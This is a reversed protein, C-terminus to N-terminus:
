DMEDKDWKKPSPLARNDLSTPRSPPVIEGELPPITSLRPHQKPPMRKDREVLPAYVQIPPLGKIWMEFHYDKLGVKFKINCHRLADLVGASKIHSERQHAFTFGMKMKRSHDIIHEITPDNAIYDHCEDIYAFVPFRSEREELARQKSAFDLQSIIYRGFIETGRNHHRVKDTDVLLLQPKSLEQYFDIASPAMLMRKIAPINTVGTIRTIIQGKTDSYIGSNFINNFFYQTDDSLYPLIQMYRDLGGKKELLYLLDQITAGPLALLLEVCRNFLGSQIATFNGSEGNSASFIFHVMETANTTFTEKEIDNIFRRKGVVFPNMPTTSDILKYPIEDLIKWKQIRGLLEKQGESDIVVVACKGAKVDYLDPEILDELLTTKGSGHGACIWTHSFRTEYKLPYPTPLDFIKQDALRYPEYNSPFFSRLPTTIRANSKFNKDLVDAFRRFAPILEDPNIRLSALHELSFHLAKFYYLYLDEPLGTVDPLKPIIEKKLYDEVEGM